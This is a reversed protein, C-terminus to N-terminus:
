VCNRLDPFSSSSSFLSVPFQTVVGSLHTKNFRCRGINELLERCSPLLCFCCVCGRCVTIRLRYHTPHVDGGNVWMQSGDMDLRWQLIENGCAYGRSKSQGIFHSPLLEDSGPSTPPTQRSANWEAAPLAHNICFGWLTVPAVVCPVSGRCTVQVVTSQTHASIFTKFTLDSLTKHPKKRLM